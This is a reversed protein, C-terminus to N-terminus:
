RGAMEALATDCRAISKLTEDPKDKNWGPLTGERSLGQWIDLSRQYWSKAERWFGLRQKAPTSTVSAMRVYLDGLDFTTEGLRYSFGAEKPHDKVYSERLSLAQQYNALAEPFKAGQALVNGLNNYTQSLNMLLLANTPDKAFRGAFVALARNFNELAGSEDRQLMLGRGINSYCDAMVVQIQANNPDLKEREQTLSLAKRYCDLAQKADNRLEFEGGLMRYGLGAIARAELNAPDSKIISECLENSKRYHDIANDVDRTTKSALLGGFDRYSRALALKYTLNGPESAALQERISLASHLHEEGDAQQGLKWLLQYLKGNLGAIELLIAKDPPTTALSKLIALAKRYSSVAAERHGLNAQSNGGQADGLKQYAAALESQLGRDGSAEQSLADLYESADKLMKERIPTSGDLKEIGDHYDFLVSKALKRVQSFRREAKDRERRAVRAQWATIGTAACLTVVVVAAAVVAVRNRQVFKRARYSFTDPSAKVPLGSLHRQIDEALEHASGYRRAPEKRLAKLVINDLDGSLRRRLREVTGERIQGILEPTTIAQTTDTVNETVRTIAVSPKLPEESLIVHAIEEPNHSALKYPRHGSLLEYLVVGLSYVDSATTISLGRLQEPSAYAPTMLRQMTLTAEGTEASWKPSLLKAIGFDLLKPVGEPTVLINGPKIDRHIILNQHAYQLAACVERFLELRQTTTFRHADCYEDIPQGDVYEMVFYPLGDSTTGGELLRAIHPHELNALIQREMMFRRLIADTDMGRNVVKIAVQKHYQDDARIALFVTGMGGHGIERVIEYPGLRQGVRKEVALPPGTNPETIVGADVLAPSVLFAGAQEHSAILQEVQAHLELNSGCAQELFRPREGPALELASNFLAKLQQWSDPTM